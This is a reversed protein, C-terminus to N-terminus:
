SLLFRVAEQAGETSRSQLSHGGGRIVVLKGNSMRAEQERAWEVPTSLDRDGSLLLAPM